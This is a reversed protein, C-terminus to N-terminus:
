GLKNRDLFSKVLPLIREHAEEVVWHAADPLEHVEAAPFREKWGQLYGTHFVWDKLGWVVLHPRDKFLPLGQDLRELLPRNHHGDELPIEEVFRLIAYRDEFTNYPAMYGERVAGRFREPHGLIFLLGSRLFGNLGQVVLKGYLPLRFTKLFFPLPKLFVGSNFVVFRKFRDPRELAALYGIAGGWDHVVLTIDRLDLKDILAVLNKVHDTIRYGWPRPKDSLGCGLHDLAVCRCTDRLGKVLERYYFSWTPNGHVMLLTDGKGEDVYHLRHGGEVELYHSEFPYLARVAPSLNATTLTM